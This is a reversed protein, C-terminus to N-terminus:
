LILLAVAALLVNDGHPDVDVVCILDDLLALGRGSDAEQELNPRGSFFCNPAWSFGRSAGLPQILDM